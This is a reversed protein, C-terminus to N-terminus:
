NEITRNDNRTKPRVAPESSQQDDNGLLLEQLLILESTKCVEYWDSRLEFDSRNSVSEVMGDVSHSVVKNQAALSNVLKKLNQNRDM